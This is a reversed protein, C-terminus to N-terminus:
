ATEFTMRNEKLKHYAIVKAHNDQIKELLLCVLDYVLRINLEAIIAYHKRANANVIDSFGEIILKYETSQSKFCIMMYNRTTICDQEDIEASCTKVYSNDITEDYKSMNKNNLLSALKEGTPNQNTTLSTLIVPPCANLEKMVADDIMNNSKSLEFTNSDFKLSRTKKVQKIETVKEEISLDTFSDNNKTRHRKKKKKEITTVSTTVTDEIPIRIKRTVKKNVQKRPPEQNLVKDYHRVLNTFTVWDLHTCFYSDDTECDQLDCGELSVNWERENKAIIVLSSKPIWTKVNKLPVELFSSDDVENLYSNMFQLIPETTPSEVTFENKQQNEEENEDNILQEYTKIHSLSKEDGNPSPIMISMDLRRRSTSRESTQSTESDSTYRERKEQRIREPTFYQENMNPNQKKTILIKKNKSCLININLSCIIFDILCYAGSKCFINM